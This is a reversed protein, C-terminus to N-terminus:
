LDIDIDMTETNNVTDLALHLSALLEKAEVYAQEAEDIDYNSILYDVFNASNYRDAVRQKPLVSSMNRLKRIRATLQPIYVLAQDITLGDFGPLTHTLNFTNIAHKVIRMKTELAALEKQTDAFDYKPRLSEIDEGAAVQFSATLDEKRELDNIRGELSKLLKNAEASTYKM